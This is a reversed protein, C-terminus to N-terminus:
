KGPDPYVWLWLQGGLSLTLSGALLKIIYYSKICEPHLEKKKGCFRMNLYDGTHKQAAIQEPSLPTLVRTNFTGPQIAGLPQDQDVHADAPWISDGDVVLHPDCSVDVLVSSILTFCM